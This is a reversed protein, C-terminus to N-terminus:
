QTIEKLTKIALLYLGDPINGAGTEYEQILWRILHESNTM